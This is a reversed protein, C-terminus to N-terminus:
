RLREMRGVAEPDRQPRGEPDRSYTSQFRIRFKDTPKFQKFGQFDYFDYVAGSAFWGIDTPDMRFLLHVQGEEIIDSEKLYKIQFDYHRIRVSTSGHPKLLEKPEDVRVFLKRKFLKVRTFKGVEMNFLWLQKTGEKVLQMPVIGSFIEIRENIPTTSEELKFENFGPEATREYYGTIADIFRDIRYQYFPNMATLEKLKRLCRIKTQDNELTMCRGIYNPKQDREIPLNIGRDGVLGENLYKLYGELFDM